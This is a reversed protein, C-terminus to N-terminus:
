FKDSMVEQDYKRNHKCIQVMESPLLSQPMENIRDAQRVKNILILEVKQERTMSEITNAFKCWRPHCFAKPCKMSRGAQRVKNLLILQEGGCLKRATLPPPPLCILIIVEICSPWQKRCHGALM